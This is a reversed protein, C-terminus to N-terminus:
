ISTFWIFFWKDSFSFFLFSILMISSSLKIVLFGVFIELLIWLSYSEWIKKKRKRERLEQWNNILKNLNKKQPTPHPHKHLILILHPNMKLMLDWYNWRGSQDWTINREGAFMCYLHCLPWAGKRHDVCVWNDDKKEKSLQVIMGQLFPTRFFLFAFSLFDM